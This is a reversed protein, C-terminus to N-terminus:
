TPTSSGAASNPWSAACRTSPMAAKYVRRSILADFVDAVAM